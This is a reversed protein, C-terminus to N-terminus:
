NMPDSSFHSTRKSPMHYYLPTTFRPTANWAVLFGAVIWFTRSTLAAGLAKRTTNIHDIRGQTREEPLLRSTAVCVIAPATAIILAAVHLASSPELTHTLWGGLLASGVAAINLWTWQQGQFARILGTRQGHEVMLADLVVDTAAVSITTLCLVAIILDPSLVQTLWLYGLVAGAFSVLLYSKRRYGFLPVCDTILGYIPKVVWPIAAMALAQNVEGAGLGLSKLYYTLPHTLLGTVGQACAAVGFFIM